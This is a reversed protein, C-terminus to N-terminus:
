VKTVINTYYIWLAIGIFCKSICDLINMAINKYSEELLFVFGYGTWFFLYLFYLFYKKIGERATIFNKHILYYLAIFPVFGGICATIRDIKGIEGLYGFGLMIYNLVFISGVIPLSVEKNSENALFGCLVLLMFPTTISWDIYRTKTINSWDLSTGNKESDDIQTVFLSYFYGAVLSICTELNFIHRIIPKEARLSEILTITGTTLLLIYTIKFSAKVWYSTVEKPENSNKQTNKKYEVDGYINSEQSPITIFASM